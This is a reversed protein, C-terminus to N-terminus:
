FLAYAIIMIMAVCIIGRKWPREVVFYDKQHWM